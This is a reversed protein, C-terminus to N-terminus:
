PFNVTELNVVQRGILLFRRIRCLAAGRRATETRDISHDIYYRDDRTSNSSSSLRAPEIRRQPVRSRCPISLDVPAVACFGCDRPGHHHLTIQSLVSVFHRAVPPQQQQQAQQHSVAEEHDFAPVMLALVRRRRLRSVSVPVPM